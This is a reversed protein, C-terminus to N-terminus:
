FHEDIKELLKKAKIKAVENSLRQESFSEAPFEIVEELLQKFFMKDQAPIAYYQSYLVLSILFKRQSVQLAREFYFRSKELDGGFIKPRSGYYCGLFIDAGSYFYGPMLENVRLMLMEVKPLDAVADPNDRSLNAYGGWSYATWFLLPVDEKKLRRLAREFDNLDRIATLDSKVRKSVHMLGFDRGREYFNKAREPNDEELFLFAYAGFGQSAFLLLDKNKPDNKLLIELPKLQTAMSEEALVVDSEEYYTEVGKGLIDIATRMGISKFSCAPFLFLFLSFLCVSFRNM